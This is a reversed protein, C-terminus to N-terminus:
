AVIEVGNLYVYWYATNYLAYSLPFLIRCALDIKEALSKNSGCTLKSLLKRKLQSSSAKQDASERSQPKADETTTTLPLVQIKGKLKVPHDGSINVSQSSERFTADVKSLSM